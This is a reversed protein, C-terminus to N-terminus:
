AICPLKIPAAIGPKVPYKRYRILNPLIEKLYIRLIHILRSHEVIEEICLINFLTCLSLASKRIIIVSDPKECNAPYGVLFAIINGNFGHLYKFVAANLCSPIDKTVPRKTIIYAPLYALRPKLLIKHKETCTVIRIRIICLRIDIDM